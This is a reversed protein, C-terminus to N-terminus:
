WRPIGSTSKLIAQNGAHTENKDGEHLCNTLLSESNANRHTQPSLSWITRTAHSCPDPGVQQQLPQGFIMMLSTNNESSVLAHICWIYVTDYKCWTEHVSTFPYCTVLFSWWLSCMKLLCFWCDPISSYIPPKPPWSAHIWTQYEFEIALFIELWRQITLWPTKILSPWCTFDLKPSALWKLNSLDGVFCHNFRPVRISARGGFLTISTKEPFFYLLGPSGSDRASPEDDLAGFKILNLVQRRPM